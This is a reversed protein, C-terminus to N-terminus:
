HCTRTNISNVTAKVHDLILTLMMTRKWLIYRLLEDNSNYYAWILLNWKAIDDKEKEIVEDLKMAGINYIIEYGKWSLHLAMDSFHWRFRYCTRFFDTHMKRIQHLLYIKHEKEISHLFEHYLKLAETESHLQHNQLPHHNNSNWM